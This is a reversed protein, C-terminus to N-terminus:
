RRIILLLVCLTCLMITRVQYLANGSRWIESALKGYGAGAYICCMEIQFLRIPWMPYSSNNPANTKNADQPTPKSSSLQLPLFLFIFNWVKFMRDEGDWIVYSHFHFSMMNLHLLVLQLKPYVNWILLIANVIGMIHVFYFIHSYYSLPLYEAISCLPSYPFDTNVMNPYSLTESVPFLYQQCPILPLTAIPAAVHNSATPYLFFMNFDLSLMIRDFLICLGYVIRLYRIWQFANTGTTIRSHFFENWRSALSVMTNAHFSVSVHLM